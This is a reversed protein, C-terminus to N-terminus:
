RQGDVNQGLRLRAGLVIEIRITETDDDLEPPPAAEKKGVQVADIRSCLLDVDGPPFGSNLIICADVKAKVFTYTAEQAQKRSTVRDPLFMSREDILGDGKLANVVSRMQTEAEVKAPESFVGTSCAIVGVVPADQNLCASAM